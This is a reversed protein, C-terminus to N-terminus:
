SAIAPKLGSPPAHRGFIVRLAEVLMLAALVILV